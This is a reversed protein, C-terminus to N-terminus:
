QHVGFSVRSALDNLLVLLTPPNFCAVALQFLLHQATLYGQAASSRLGHPLFDPSSQEGIIKHSQGHSFDGFFGFDLWRPEAKGDSQVVDLMLPSPHGDLRRCFQGSM